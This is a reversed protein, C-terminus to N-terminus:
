YKSKAKNSIEHKIGITNIKCYLFFLNIKYPFSLAHPPLTFAQILTQHIKLNLDGLIAALLGSNSVKILDLSRLYIHVAASKLM